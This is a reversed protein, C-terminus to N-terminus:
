WTFGTSTSTRKGLVFYIFHEWFYVRSTFYVSIWLLVSSNVMRDVTLRLDFATMGRWHRSCMSQDEIPKVKMRGQSKLCLGKNEKESRLFFWSLYLSFVKFLIFSPYFITSPCFHSMPESLSYFFMKHRSFFTDVVKYFHTFNTTVWSSVKKQRM